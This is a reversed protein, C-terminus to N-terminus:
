KTTDKIPHPPTRRNWAAISDPRDDYARWGYLPCQILKNKDESPRSDWTPHSWWSVGDDTYHNLVGGCFPCPLMEMAKETEEM